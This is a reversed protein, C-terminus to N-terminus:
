HCQGSDTKGRVDMSSKPTETNIGVQAKVASITLLIVATSLLKKMMLTKQKNLGQSIMQIETKKNKM